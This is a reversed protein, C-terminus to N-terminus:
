GGYTSMDSVRTTIRGTHSNKFVSVTAMAYTSDTSYDWGGICNYDYDFSKCSDWSRSTKSGDAEVGVDVRWSSWRDTFFVKVSTAGGPTPFNWGANRAVQKAQGLGLSSVRASAPAAVVALAALVVPVAILKKM